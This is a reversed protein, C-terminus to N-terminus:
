KQIRNIGKGILCNVSIKTLSKSASTKNTVQILLYSVKPESVEMHFRTNSTPLIRLDKLPRMARATKEILLRTMMRQQVDNCLVCCVEYRM